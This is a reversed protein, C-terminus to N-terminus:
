KSKLLLNQFTKGQSKALKELAEIYNEQTVMRSQLEGLQGEFLNEPYSIRSDMRKAIELSQKFFDTRESESLDGTQRHVIDNRLNKMREVDDQKNIDEPLPPKGWGQNPEPLLHFSRIIHYLSSIDLNDYGTNALSIMKTKTMHKDQFNKNNKIQMLVIQPPADNCVMEKMIKPFVKLVVMMATVHDIDAREPFKSAM